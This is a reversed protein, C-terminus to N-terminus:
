GLKDEWARLPPSLVSNRPHIYVCFMASGSCDLKFKGEGSRREAGGLWGIGKLLRSPFPFNGIVGCRRRCAPQLGFPEALFEGIPGLVEM